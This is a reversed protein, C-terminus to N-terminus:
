NTPSSFPFTSNRFAPFTSDPPRMGRISSISCSTFARWARTSMRQRTISGIITTGCRASPSTSMEMPPSTLASAPRSCFWRCPGGDSEPGSHFNHLHTSTEPVGFGGPPAATPLENFRRVVIPTQYHSVITPAPFIAPDATPNTGGQNFGWITQPGIKPDSTIRFNTNQRIREIFFKQPPFQGFFQFCDSGPRLVGNFQGRGEFPLGTAPNIANNPCIAPPTAFGPDTLQREPLVPMITLPDIFPTTPPSCGLQCLGPSCGDAWASLGSKAVLYGGSTLLGLKFLERRGLRSAIIERRNRQASLMQKWRAKSVKYGFINFYM